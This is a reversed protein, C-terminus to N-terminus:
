VGAAEGVAVARDIQGRAVDMQEAIQEDEAM